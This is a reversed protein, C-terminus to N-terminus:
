KNISRRREASWFSNARPAACGNATGAAKTWGTGWPARHHLIQIPIWVCPRKCQGGAQCHEAQQGGACGGCRQLFRFESCWRGELFTGEPFGGVRLGGCHGIGPPLQEVVRNQVCQLPLENYAVFCEFAVQGLQRHGPRGQRAAAGALQGRHAQVGCGAVADVGAHGVGACGIGQRGIGTPLQVQPAANCAAHGAAVGTQLGATGVQGGGAQGQLGQEGLVIKRHPLRFDLGFQQLTRHQREATRQLQRLVTICTANHGGGVHGLGGRM